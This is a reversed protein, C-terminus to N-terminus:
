FLVGSLGCSTLILHIIQVHSLSPGPMPVEVWQKWVSVDERQPGAVALCIPCFIYPNCVTLFIGNIYEKGPFQAAETGMGVNM